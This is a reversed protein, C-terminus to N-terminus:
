WASLTTPNTQRETPYWGTEHLAIGGVEPLAMTEGDAMVPPVGFVFGFPDFAARILEAESMKRLFVAAMDRTGPLGANAQAPPSGIFFTWPPDTNAWNLTDTATTSTVLGSVMDRLVFQMAGDSHRYSLAAFYIRGITPALTAFAAVIGPKVYGINGSGSYWLAFGTNAGTESGVGIVRTDDVNADFRMLCMFTIDYGTSVPAGPWYLTDAQAIARGRLGPPLSSSATPAGIIKAATGNVNNRLGLGPWALAARNPGGGRRPSLAAFLQQNHLRV